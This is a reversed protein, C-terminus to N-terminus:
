KFILVGQSLITSRDLRHLASGDPSTYERAHAKSTVCTFNFIRQKLEENSEVRSNIRVPRLSGPCRGVLRVHQFQLIAAALQLIAEAVKIEHALDTEADANHDSETAQFFLLSRASRILKMM